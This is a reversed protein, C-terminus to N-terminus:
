LHCCYCLCLLESCQGATSYVAHQPTANETHFPRIINCQCLFSYLRNLDFDKDILNITKVKIHLTSSPFLFHTSHTSPKCYSNSTSILPPSHFHHFTSITRYLHPAIPSSCYLPPDYWPLKLHIGM